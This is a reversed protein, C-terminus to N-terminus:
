RGEEKRLLQTQRPAQTQQEQLSRVLKELDGYRQESARLRTELTSIQLQQEEIAEALVATMEAYNVGKFGDTPNTFVLEPLVQEVDQAIFGIRDAKPSDQKWQFLVGRLELVKELSQRLPRINEKLRRDSTSTTLIGTSTLNLASAYTGSSVGRFRATNLVDLDQTADDVGIGTNGNSEVFFRKTTGYNLQLIVGGTNTNSGYITAATANSTAELCNNTSASNTIDFRAANGIGVQELYIGSGVSACNIIRIANTNSYPCAIEVLSVPTATGIGLNGNKLVTMANVRTGPGSGIGIEFIPDTATWDMANTGGGVNYRGLATGCYSEARTGLGMANSYKASSTVNGLAVSGYGSALAGFGIAAGYEGAGASYGLAVGGTSNAFSHYGLVISHDGGADAGDGLAFANVGKARSQRGFAVSHDGINADDWLGVGAVGARFAAKKPYWILRTGYGSTSLSAGSGFTGKAIIGGDGDLTLKFEPTVTGIGTKGDGRVTMLETSAADKVTFGQATTSGSLKAEIEQAHVSVAALCLGALIICALAKM